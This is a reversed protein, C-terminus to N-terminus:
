KKRIWLKLRNEDICQLDTSIIMGIVEDLEKLRNTPEM